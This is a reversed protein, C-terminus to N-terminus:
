RGALLIGNLHRKSPASSPGVNFALKLAKHSKIPDPGTNSLFGINKHNKLPHRSGMDGIQIRAHYAENQPTEDSNAHSTYSSLPDPYIPQFRIGM